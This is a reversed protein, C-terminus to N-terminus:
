RSKRGVAADASMRREMKLFWRRVAWIGAIFVLVVSGVLWWNVSGSGSIATEIADGFVTTALTGPLLGIATGLAVHWVKMRIAGAVISEVAFPALPVLRLLTMALLGHKKLVEIMRDLKPGAIRRVSDRRMKRGIYYTVISS